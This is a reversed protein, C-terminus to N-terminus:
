DEQAVESPDKLLKYYHKKTDEPPSFNWMQDLWKEQWGYAQERVIVEREQGTKSSDVVQWYSGIVSKKQNNERKLDDLANMIADRFRGPNKKDPVIGAGELLARMSIDNPFKGGNKANIRFMLTLYIGLRKQYRENKASYALVQRLMKATQSNLEPIMTVWEGVSISRQEWIEEGTITHYEGIKFSLLDIIAGEAKIITPETKNKRRRGPGPMVAIIRAQSLTKLHKIVEARQLATYSGNSKKKKCIELIDDPSIRFPMRIHQVGNRELAIAQVAIHTDICGDGLTNLAALITDFGEGDQPWITIIIQGKEKGFQHRHEAMGHEKYATYTKPDRLGNIIERNLTASIMSLDEKQTVATRRVRPREPKKAPKQKEIEVLPRDTTPVPPAIEEQIDSAPASNTTFNEAISKLHHEYYDGALEQAMHQIEQWHELWTTKSLAKRLEEIHLHAAGLQAGQVLLDARTQGIALKQQMTLSHTTLQYKHEDSAIRHRETFAPWMLPSSLAKIAEGLVVWRQRAELPLDLIHYPHLNDNKEVYAYEGIQPVPLPNLLPIIQPEPNADISFVLMVPAIKQGEAQSPKYWEELYEPDPDSRVLHVTTYLQTSAISTGPSKVWGDAVLDSIADLSYPINPQWLAAWLWLQPFHQGSTKPIPLMASLPIGRYAPKNM